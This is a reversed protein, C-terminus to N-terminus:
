RHFLYSFKYFIFFSLAMYAFLVITAIRYKKRRRRWVEDSEKNFGSMFLRINYFTIYGLIVLFPVILILIAVKM